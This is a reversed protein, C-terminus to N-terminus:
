FIWIRNQILQISDIRISFFLQQLFPLVEYHWCCQLSDLYVNCKLYLIFRHATFLLPLQQNSVCLFTSRWCTKGWTKLARLKDAKNQWTCVSASLVFSIEVVSFIINLWDIQKGIRTSRMRHVAVVHSPPHTYILRCWCQQEAFM